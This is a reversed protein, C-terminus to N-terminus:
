EKIELTGLDTPEAKVEVVTLPHDPNYYRGKLRDKTLTDPKNRRRGPGVTGKKQAGAGPKADAPAGAAPTEDPWSVLVKYRGPLAGDGDRSVVEFRGDEGVMASSAVPEGTTPKVEPQFM